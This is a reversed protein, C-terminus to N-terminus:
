RKRLKPWCGGVDIEGHGASEYVKALYGAAGGGPMYRRIHAIGAMRKWDATAAVVDLNPCAGVLIHYHLAGRRHQESCRAWPVGDHYKYYSRGFRAHNIRHTWCRFIRHARQASPAIRFTLTIYFCWAHAELFETWAAVVSSDGAGTPPLPPLGPHQDKSSM